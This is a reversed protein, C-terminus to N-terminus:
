PFGDQGGAGHRRHDEGRDDGCLPYRVHEQQEVSKVPGVGLPRLLTDGKGLPEWFVRALVM